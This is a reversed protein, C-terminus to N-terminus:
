FLIGTFPVLVKNKFWKELEFPRLNNVTMNQERQQVHLAPYDIFKSRILDLVCPHDQAVKHTNVYDAFYIYFYLKLM